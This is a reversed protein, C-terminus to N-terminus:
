HWICSLHMCCWGLGWGPRQHQVHAFFGVLLAPRDRELDWQLQDLSLFRAERMIAGYDWPDVRPLEKYRLWHLITDYHTPDRCCNPSITTVPLHPLPINISLSM